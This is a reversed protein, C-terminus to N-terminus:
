KTLICLLQLMIFAAVCSSNAPWWVVSQWIKIANHGRKHTSAKICKCAVWNRRTYTYMYAHHGAVYAAQLSKTKWLHGHLRSPQLRSSLEAKVKLHVAWKLILTHSHHLANKSCLREHIILQVHGDSQM